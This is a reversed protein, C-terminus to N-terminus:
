WTGGAFDNQRFGHLSAKVHYGSRRVYPAKPSGRHGRRLRQRGESLAAGAARRGVQRRALAALGRRRDRGAGHRHRARTRGDWGVWDLEAGRALLLEATELQGGHCAQWFAETVQQPAVGSALEEEVRDVLGLAAAQWLDAHAGREVLRRAAQWQGFAVADALATGGGIM